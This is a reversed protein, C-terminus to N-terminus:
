QKRRTGKSLYAKSEAAVIDVLNGMSVNVDILHTGWHPQLRGLVFVDGPIDDARPDSPDGHM